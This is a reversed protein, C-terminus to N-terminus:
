SPSTERILEQFRGEEAVDSLSSGWIEAHALIPAQLSILAWRQSQQPWWHLGIKESAVVKGHKKSVSISKSTVLILIFVLPGAPGLTKEQFDLGASLILWDDKMNKLSFNNAAATMKHLMRHQDM